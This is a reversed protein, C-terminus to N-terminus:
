PGDPLALTATNWLNIYKLQWHGVSLNVMSQLNFMVKLDGHGAQSENLPM